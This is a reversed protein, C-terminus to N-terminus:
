KDGVHGHTKRWFVIKKLRIKLTNYSYNCKIGCLLYSYLCQFGQLVKYNNELECFMKKAQKTRHLIYTQKQLRRFTAEEDIWDTLTWSSFHQSYLHSLSKLFSNGANCEESLKQRAKKVAGWSVLCRYSARCQLINQVSLVFLYAYM